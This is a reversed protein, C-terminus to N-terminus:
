KTHFNVQLTHQTKTLSLQERSLDQKLQTTQISLEDRERTILNMNSITDQLSSDAAVMQTKLDDIQNTKTSDEAAHKEELSTIHQEYKQCRQTLEEHEQHAASARLEADSLSSKLQQLQVQYQEGENSVLQSQQQIKIQFEQELSARLENIAASQRERATSAANDMQKQHVAAISELQRRSQQNRSRETNLETRLETIKTSLANTSDQKEKLRNELDELQRRLQVTPDVRGKEVWEGGVQGGIQLLFDILSQIEIGTFNAKEVIHQLKQISIETILSLSCNFKLM